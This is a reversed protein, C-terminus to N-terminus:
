FTINLQYHFSWVLIVRKNVRRTVVHSLRNALVRLKAEHLLGHARREGNLLDIELLLHWKLSHAWNRKPIGLKRIYISSFSAWILAFCPLYRFFQYHALLVREEPVAPCVYGVRKWISSVILDLVIEIGRDPLVDSFYRLRSNRM